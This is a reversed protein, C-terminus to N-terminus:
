CLNKESDLLKKILFLVTKDIKRTGAEWSQLTRLNIGFKKAFKSQSLQLDHRISVLEKKLIEKEDAEKIKEKEKKLFQEHEEKIYNIHAKIDKDNQFEEQLMDGCYMCVYIDKGTLEPIEFGLIKKFSSLYHDYNIFHGDSHPIGCIPCVAYTIHNNM